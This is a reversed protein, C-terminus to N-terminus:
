PQSAQSAKWLESRTPKPYLIHNAVSAPCAITTEVPPTAMDDTCPCWSDREEGVGMPVISYRATPSAAEDGLLMRLSKCTRLARPQPKSALGAGVDENAALVVETPPKVVLMPDVRKVLTRDDDRTVAFVAVLVLVVVFFLWRM